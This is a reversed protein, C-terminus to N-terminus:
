LPLLKRLEGLAFGALRSELVQLPATTLWVLLLTLVWKLPFVLMSLQFREVLRGSIASVLDVAMMSFVFPGALRIGTSASFSLVKVLSDLL